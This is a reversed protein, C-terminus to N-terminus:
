EIWLGFERLPTEREGPRYVRVWYRGAPLGGPLTVTLRADSAKAASSFRLDGEADVVQVDYSPSPVLGEVDLHLVLTRNEPAKTEVAIQSRYATLWLEVAAAGPQSGPLFVLLIAAAVAALPGAWVLRRLSSSRARDESAKEAAQSGSNELELERLATQMARVYDETEQVRGRCEECLLLHEELRAQEEEGLRDMVYLELADESPHSKPDSPMEVIRASSM